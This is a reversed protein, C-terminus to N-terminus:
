GRRRMRELREPVVANADRALPAATSGSLQSNRRKRWEDVMDLDFNGTTSDPYPFGRAQLEALMQRFAGLTLGIRRATAQPSVDRPEVRFRLKGPEASPARERPAPRSAIGKAFGEEFGDARGQALGVILPKFEILTM